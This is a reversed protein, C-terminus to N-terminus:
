QAAYIQDRATEIDRLVHLDSEIRAAFQRTRKIEICFSQCFGSLRFRLNILLTRLRQM